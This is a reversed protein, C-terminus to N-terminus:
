QSAAERTKGMDLVDELTLDNKELLKTRFRSLKCGVIVQDRIHESTSNGYECYMSLKRLRTVYQEISENGEQRANRASM